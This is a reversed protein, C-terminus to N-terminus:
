SNLKRISAASEAPTLLDFKIISGPIPKALSALSLQAIISSISRNTARPYGTNTPADRLRNKPPSSGVERSAAVTASVLCSLWLPM